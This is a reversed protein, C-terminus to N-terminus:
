QACSDKVPDQEPPCSPAGEEPVYPLGLLVPEASFNMGFSLADCDASPAGLASAIDIHGCLLEKFQEYEFSGDDCLPKGNVRVSSMVRFIDATTWRAAVIGDSLKYREGVKEIRGMVTGATLRVGLDGGNGSLNIFVQPMSGVLVGDAVYAKPDTYKPKELSAGDELAAASAPWVDNGDWTPAPVAADNWTTPYIAVTVQADNPEGNYEYVRVLLSWKGAEARDSFHKSGFEEPGLFISLTEFVKAFGNDRGEEDDCHNKDAFDPYVCSPGEEFHCTCTNDLDLGATHGTVEGLDISRLAVSFDITGGPTATAPPGPYTAHACGAPGADNESGGDAGGDPGPPSGSLGDLDVALSCAAGLVLAAPTIWVIAKPAM